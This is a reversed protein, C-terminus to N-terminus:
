TIPGRDEPDLVQGTIANDEEDIFFASLGKEDALWEPIIFQRLEIGNKVYIPDSEVQSKPLWFNDPNDRDHMGLGCLYAKESEVFVFLDIEIVNKM